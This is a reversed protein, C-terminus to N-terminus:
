SELLAISARYLGHCPLLDQRSLAGYIYVLGGTHGLFHQPFMSIFVYEADRIPM